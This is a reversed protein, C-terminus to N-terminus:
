SIKNGPEPLRKVLEAFLRLQAGQILLSTAQFAIREPMNDPIAMDLKADLQTMFKEIEQNNM